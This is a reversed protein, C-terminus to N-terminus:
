GGTQARCTSTVPHNRLNLTSVHIPRQKSSMSFSPTENLPTATIRQMRGHDRRNSPVVRVMARARTTPGDSTAIVNRDSNMARGIFTGYRWKADM